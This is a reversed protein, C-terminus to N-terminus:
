WESSFCDAAIGSLNRAMEHDFSTSSCMKVDQLGLERMLPVPDGRDIIFYHFVIM